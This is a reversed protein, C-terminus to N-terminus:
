GVSHETPLMDKTIYLDMQDVTKSFNPLNRDVNWTM